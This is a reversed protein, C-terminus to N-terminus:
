IFPNAIMISKENLYDLIGSFSTFKFTLSYSCLKQIKVGHKRNIENKGYKGDGLIPHGIFALHARIQHTRGTHLNVDLVSTHNPFTSIVQYSTIIKQYGKKPTSSLYVQSKKADKFLFATLTQEAKQPVGDVHCVYHKEIEHKKFKELLISLAEETKAFLVLGTTNRDLRHCPFITPYFSKFYDTLSNTGTIEIGTPKNAVLIFEDEYVIGITLEKKCSNTNSSNPLYVCIEDGQYVLINKKVRKGNVKIDKKRLMKYLVSFSLQDVNELLFSFLKKGDFKQNVVLNKMM